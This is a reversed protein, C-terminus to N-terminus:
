KFDFSPKGQYPTFIVYGHQIELYHGEQMDIDVSVLDGENYSSSNVSWLTEHYYVNSYLSIRKGSNDLTDGYTIILFSGSQPISLSWHGEPIDEGIVWLGAPVKVEQWDESLWMAMNIMSKLAVLEEYSMGSLDVGEAFAPTICLCALLICLLKKM